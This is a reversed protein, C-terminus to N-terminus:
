IHCTDLCVGIRTKDKVGEIMEQIEEFTVGLETGKGSMTELCIVVNTDKTKEIALNLGKIISKMGEIKPSKVISGPHLVIYKIGIASTRKIENVMMDLSRRFLGEKDPNGFNILYPAHVVFNDINLDLEKILQKGEEIMLKDIPTRNSNQPAGTYLMLTTANYSNAEKISGVFYNPAKFSVHSGIITKM